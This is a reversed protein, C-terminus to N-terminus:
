LKSLIDEYLEKKLKHKEVIQGIATKQKFTLIIDLKECIDQLEKVTYASPAKLPRQVNEIFWHTHKITELITDEYLLSHEKKENRQIIGKVTDGYLFECYQKGYIYTISVKHVLCLVHLGKITIQEKNVLEDEVENIKLKLDKIQAKMKRLKEVSSIKFAKEIAYHGTHHMEYETFGNLLVYFCWFLKDKQFPTFSTDNKEQVPAQAVPAQAVPAQAPALEQVPAQAPALEQVPAQAPAQAVPEQAVPEQAVPEQAVPEQAVPEQVPEQAVPGQAVPAPGQAVPAPAQAAPAQVVPALAQINIGSYQIKNYNIMNKSSFM